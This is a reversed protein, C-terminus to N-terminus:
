GPLGPEIGPPIVLSSEDRAPSGKQNAALRYLSSLKATGFQRKALDYSLGEPFVLNQYIIRHEVSADLWIRSANSMFQLAYDISNTKFDNMSGIEDLQKRTRAEETDLNSTLMKKEDTTIQGNVLMEVTKNKRDTLSELAKHLQKQKTALTQTEDRWVRVIMEKLFKEMGSDPKLSNLLAIFQEHMENPKISPVHCRSCHYRPSPMGSGNRPSSGTIPKECNTCLLFRRLPFDPNNQKYKATSNKNKKLTDQNRYFTSPSIIGNFKSPLLQGDTHQSKELGAYIPNRLAKSIAQIQMKKGTASKLGIEECLRVLGAMTYAGSSYAELIMAMNDAVGEVPEVTSKGLVDRTNRLGLPAKSMRYGEKAQRKMNEKVRASKLRNDHNAIVAELSQVLEDNLNEDLSSNINKYEVGLLSLKARLAFFDVASRTLRDTQYTILYSIQNRSAEFDSLMEKMAPRDLTKASVGDDHYIKEVLVNNRSAWEQCLFQQTELSAGDVQKHTSVRLYIVARKM